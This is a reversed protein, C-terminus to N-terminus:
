LIIRIKIKFLLDANSSLDMWHLNDEPDQVDSQLRHFRQAYYSRPRLFDTNTCKIISENNEFTARKDLPKKDPFYYCIRRWSNMQDSSKKWLRPCHNNCDIKTIWYGTKLISSRPCNRCRLREDSDDVPRRTNGRGTNSALWDNIGYSLKLNTALKIAIIQPDM